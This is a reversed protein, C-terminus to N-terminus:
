NFAGNGMDAISGMRGPIGPIIEFIGHLLQAGADVLENACYRVFYGPGHSPRLCPRFHEIKEVRHFATLLGRAFDGWSRFTNM